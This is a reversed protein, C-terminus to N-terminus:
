FIFEELELSVAYVKYAHRLDPRMCSSQLDMSTFGNAKELIFNVTTKMVFVRRVMAFAVVLELEV